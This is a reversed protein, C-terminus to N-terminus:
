NRFYLYIFNLLYNIVEKKNIIINILLDLLFISFPLNIILIIVNLLDPEHKESVFWIMQLVYLMPTHPGFGQAIAWLAAAAQEASDYVGFQGVYQGIRQLASWELTPGVDNLVLRRIPAITPVAPGGAIAMGILGGM